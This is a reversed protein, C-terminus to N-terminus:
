FPWRKLVYDIAAVLRTAAYIVGTGIAAIRRTRRSKRWWARLRGKYLHNPMCEEMQLDPQLLQGLPIPCPNESVALLPLNKNM